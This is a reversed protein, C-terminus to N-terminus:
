TNPSASAPTEKMEQDLLLVQRKKIQPESRAAVKGGLVPVQSRNEILARDLWRLPLYVTEAQRCSKTGIAAGSRSSCRYV